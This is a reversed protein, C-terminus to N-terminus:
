PLSRQGFGRGHGGNSWDIAADKEELTIISRAIAPRWARVLPTTAGGLTIPAMWAQMNLPADFEVGCSTGSSWCITAFATLGRRKLIIDTGVGPMCAGHVLAQVASLERLTVAHDNATTVLTAAMLVRERLGDEWAASQAQPILKLIQTSGMGPGWNSMTIVANPIVAKASWHVLMNVRSLTLRGLVPKARRKVALNAGARGNCDRLVSHGSRTLSATRLRVTPRSLNTTLQRDTRTASRCSDQARKKFSGSRLRGFRASRSHYSKTQFHVARVDGSQIRFVQSTSRRREKQSLPPSDLSPTGCRYVRTLATRSAKEPSVQREGGNQSQTIAALLPM